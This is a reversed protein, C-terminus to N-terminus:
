GTIIINQIFNPQFRIFVTSPTAKRFDYFRFNQLTCRMFLVRYIHVTTCHTGFTRGNREVILWKRTIGCKLNEMQSGHLCKLTGCNKLTPRNGLFAISQIGGHCGIHEYLKTSMSHFSYSSYRKSIELGM